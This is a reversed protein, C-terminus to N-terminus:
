VLCRADRAHSTREPNELPSAVPTGLNERVEARNSIPSSCISGVVAEFQALHSIM